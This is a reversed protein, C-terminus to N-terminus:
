KRNESPVNAGFKAFVYKEDKRWAAEREEQYTREKHRWSQMIEARGGKISKRNTEPRVFQKEEFSMGMFIEQILGIKSKFEKRVKISEKRVGRSKHHKETQEEQMENVISASGTNDVHNVNKLGSVDAHPPSVLLLYNFKASEM